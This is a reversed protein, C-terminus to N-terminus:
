GSRGGPVRHGEWVFVGFLSIRPSRTKTNTDMRAMRPRNDIKEGTEAGGGRGGRVRRKVSEGGRCVGRVIIDPAIM